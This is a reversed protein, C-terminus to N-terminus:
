PRLIPPPGPRESLKGAIVAAACLLILYAGCAGLFIWLGSSIGTRRAVAGAEFSVANANNGSSLNGNSNGSETGSQSLAGPTSGSPRTVDAGAVAPDSAAPSTSTDTSSPSAPSTQLAAAKLPFHKKRIAPVAVATTLAPESEVGKSYLFHGDKAQMSAVFSAPNFGHFSWYSSAPDQGAACIARIVTSTLQVNSAKGSASFGGDANMRGRLLTMARGVSESDAEGSAVLAESALATDYTLVSDKEGWGGDERQQSVLWETVTPAVKERAAVLALMGWAHQKIDKGIKGSKGDINATVLSVMNRGQINRPDLGAESLALVCLEIDNLDTIASARASFYSLAQAGYTMLALLNDSGAVGSLLAWCTLTDDSTAGPEAFGGDTSQRSEIYKIAETAGAGSVQARAPVAMLLAAVLLVAILFRSKM